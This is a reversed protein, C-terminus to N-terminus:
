KLATQTDCVTKCDPSPCPFRKITSADESRGGEKTETMDSKLELDAQRSIIAKVKNTLRRNGPDDTRMARILETLCHVTQGVKSSEPLDAHELADDCHPVNTSPDKNSIENQVINAGPNSRADHIASMKPASARKTSRSDSSCSRLVRKLPKPDQPQQSRICPNGQMTIDDLHGSASTYTHLSGEIAELKEGEFCTDQNLHSADSSSAPQAYLGSQPHPEHYATGDRAKIDNRSSASTSPVFSAVTADQANALQSFQVNQSSYEAQCTSSTSPASTASLQVAGGLSVSSSM